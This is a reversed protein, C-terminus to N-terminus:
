YRRSDLHHAVNLVGAQRCGYNENKPSPRLRDLGKNQRSTLHDRIGLHPSQHRENRLILKPQTCSHSTSSGAQRLIYERQIRYHRNGPPTTDSAGPLKWLM